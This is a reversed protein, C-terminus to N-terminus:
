PKAETSVWVAHRELKVSYLMQSSIPVWRPDCGSHLMEPGGGWCDRIARRSRGELRHFSTGKNAESIGLADQRPLMSARRGSVAPMRQSDNEPSRSGADSRSLQARFANLSPTAIDDSVGRYLCPLSGLASLSEWFSPTVKRGLM